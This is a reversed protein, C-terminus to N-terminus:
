AVKLHHTWRTRLPDKSIAIKAKAARERLFYTANLSLCSQLTRALKEGRDEDRLWRNTGARGEARRM